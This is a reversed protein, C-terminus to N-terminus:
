ASRGCMDFRLTLKVQQLYGGALSVHQLCRDPLKIPLMTAANRQQIATGLVQRGRRTPRRIQRSCLADGAIRKGNRQRILADVNDRAAQKKMMQVLLLRADKKFLSQANGANSDDDVVQLPVSQM